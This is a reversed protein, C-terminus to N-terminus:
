NKNEKDAQSLDYPAVLQIETMFIAYKTDLSVKGTEGTVAITDGIHLGALLPHDFMAFRPKDTLGQMLFFDTSSQLTRIAPYNGELGWYNLPEVRLVGKTTYTEAMPPVLPNIPPTVTDQFLHNEKDQMSLPMSFFSPPMSHPVDPKNCGVLVLCVLMLPIFHRM